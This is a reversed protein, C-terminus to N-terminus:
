FHPVYMLKYTVKIMSFNHDKALQEGQSMTMSIAPQSIGLIRALQNQRIGLERVAWFCLISRAAIAEKCKGSGLVQDAELGTLEAVRKMHSVEDCRGKIGSLWRSM